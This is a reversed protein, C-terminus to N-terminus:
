LPGRGGGLTDNPDLERKVAALLRANPMTGWVDALAKLETAARVVVVNGVTRAERLQDVAAAQVTVDGGIRILGAGIGGRGIMEVAATPALSELLAIVERLDAPLWSVRVIAGPASWLGSRHDDWMTREADGTVLDAGVGTANVRARAEAIQADVSAALSAFLILCSTSVKAAGPPRVARVELAAPELQSTAIATVIGALQAADIANVVLTASAAALPTLKFTAAVIAALNGFSGSVLKSLDYGAVNKVVQGGAKTVRGDPTALHIGIVLDRPTGFRHRAPGSDNTALLGGVTARDAFPPDLPLWQRHAALARNLEGLAVGAEATVTLDGHRHAIVRNLHRLDLIADFRAPPRGWGLKTGSGRLVLSLRRSSGWALTAAVAEATRPALVASPLVGDIADVQPDPDHVDVAIGSARLDRTVPM